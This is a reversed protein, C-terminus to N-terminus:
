CVEVSWHFADEHDGYEVEDGSEVTNEISIEYQNYAGLEPGLRYEIEDV